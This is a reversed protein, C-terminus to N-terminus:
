DTMAKSLPINNQDYVAWGNIRSVSTVGRPAEMWKPDVAEGIQPLKLRYRNQAVSNGISFFLDLLMLSKDNTYSKSLWRALTRGVDRLILHLSSLSTPVNLSSNAHLATWMHLQSLIIAALADEKAALLLDKLVESCPGTNWNPLTLLSQIMIGENIAEKTERKASECEELARQRKNESEDLAIQHKAKIENLVSQCKSKIDDIDIQRKTESEVLAIQHKSKIENLVSQCKSKIDGM